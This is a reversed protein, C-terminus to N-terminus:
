GVMSCLQPDEKELDAWQLEVTRNTGYREWATTAPAATATELNIHNDCNEEPFEAFRCIARPSTTEVQYRLDAYMEIYRNWLLYYLMARRQFSM